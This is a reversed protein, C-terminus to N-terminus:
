GIIIKEETYSFHTKDINKSLAFILTLLGVRGFYMLLIIIIKGLSSLSATIGMSLGVTGYASFAEFLIQEFGFPEILLLLYIMISLLGVSLAILAMVRKIIDISVKRKFVNVDQHGRFLSLVAVLIIVLATTKIGGGTSGPSAGIFMLIASIFVSGKSINANDITNFGATRTTVSQFYSTLMRDKLNMREMENNYESIFFAITGILILIVTSTLVIKSHLSLRSVRFKNFLSKKIDVLVPFGIGGFIILGTIVFNVNLNSKYAMFSDSYLSFGANCFASISHFVAHYIAKGTSYVENQFSLYLIMVGILEFMFTVLVINRILSLMDLKNSEGVVNQIMNESKLTLNQGLLIAFASSITMIGLGGIQILMLIIIQGFITFHTGTDYVILGTVCTASTSTFLAGLLTTEEGNVTAAPLMLLLSGIFIALIFSYLVLIPPNDSLKELFKGGTQPVTERKILIYTQRGLLYFQFIQESNIVFIGVLIFIIDPITNLINFVRPASFYKGIWYIIIMLSIILTFNHEWIPQLKVIKLM